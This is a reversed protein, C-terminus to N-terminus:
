LIFKALSLFTFFGVIDTVTTLLVTSAIAPDVKLKELSMPIVAGFLGASLLNVIISLAVVIGLKPMQFWFYAFVGVIISFLFGNILSLLVEKKITYLADTNDIEGVALQRVTVTLSQTGANGGMSAVIPMLVALAVYTQITSDFISIIYSAAIATILNIFLWFARTKAVPLIEEAEEAEANVGAMHFIEETAIEEILDYIDDSTIRGILHNNDDLVPIVSLNYDSVKEVVKKVDENHNAIIKSFHFFGNDINQQYTEEKECVVLEELGVSCVFENSDNVVFVHHVSDIENEKKLKKLREISTWVDETLKASFVETQMYAGAVDEDYAILKEITERDENDFRDLVKEAKEEDFESINKILVAADDTDMETAISAIKKVGVLGAIEEQVYDPFESIIEALIQNPIQLFLKKFEDADHDRVELLLEKIDYPSLSQDIVQQIKLHFDAEFNNTM